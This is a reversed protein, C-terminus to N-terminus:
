KGLVELAKQLQVDRELDPARALVQQELQPDMPVVYDPTIGKKNIDHKGPTLYKHTTIKVAGGGPLPFITQVIGKGFTTEGVLTGSGTDKIAGAVIEAASASGKNVLVVLPLPQAYGRAMLAETNKQDAIYVVPGRSVFYSAVDVAAPLAGGPNNRLDLILKQMGQQRLENLQRGLDGATQENFMTLSIYGTGPHGPLIKGDVTPVKIIERTLTVKRPNSEGASLITLEVRTGPQGQMLNSATELDMGTTDRGDIAVIYDRSKIGARQAPTGKFPSVVMLRKDKEDLTILLGVGGYSGSVSEQLHRYTKADLYTSYPDDLADVMGRIAGEMLKDTNIPELAQFRLLTYTKVLQEVEQFHTAVGVGLALTVLVCLVLLGNTVQRWIKAM